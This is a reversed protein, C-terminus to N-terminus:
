TIKEISRYWSVTHNQHLAMTQGDDSLSMVDADTRSNNNPPYIDQCLKWVKHDKDSSEYLMFRRQYTDSNIVNALIYYTSEWSGYIQVSLLRNFDNEFSLETIKKFTSSSSSSSMDYLIIRTEKDIKKEQPSFRVILKSDKSAVMFSEMVGELSLDYQLDFKYIMDKYSDYKLNKDFQLVLFYPNMYDLLTDESVPANWPDPSKPAHLVVWYLKDSNAVPGVHKLIGGDITNTFKDLEYKSDISIDYLTASGNSTTIMIMQNNKFINISSSSSNFLPMLITHTIKQFAQTKNTRKYIFVCSVPNNNTANKPFLHSIKPNESCIFRSALVALVKGDASLSVSSGYESAINGPFILPQVQKNVPTVEDKYEDVNYIYVTNYYSDGLCYTSADDSSFSVQNTRLIENIPTKYNAHNVFVYNSVYFPNKFNNDNSDNSSPSSSCVNDCVNLKKFWSM